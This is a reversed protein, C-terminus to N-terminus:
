FTLFNTAGNVSIPLTKRAHTSVKLISQPGPLCRPPFMWCVGPGTLWSSLLFTAATARPKPSMGLSSIWLGSSPHSGQPCGESLPLDPALVACPVPSPPCLQVPSTRSTIPLLTVHQSPECPGLVKFVNSTMMFIGTVKLPHTRHLHPSYSLVVGLGRLM